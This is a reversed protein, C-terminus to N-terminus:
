TRLKPAPEASRGSLLLWIGAVLSWLLVVFFPFFAVAAVGAVGALLTFWRFWAPLAAASAAMLAVLAFGLLIGGAGILIIWGTEALTYAVVPDISVKSNGGFAVALPPAVIVSWGVAFGAAAAVGAGWFVSGLMGATSDRLRTLLLVLGLLGILMLYISVFVATRHGKALYDAVNNADYTGGPPAAVLIAVFTLVGFAIGGLGALVGNDRM